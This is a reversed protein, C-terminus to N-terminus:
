LHFFLENDTSCMELVFSNVNFDSLVYAEKELHIFIDMTKKQEEIRSLNDKVTPRYSFRKKILQSFFSDNM